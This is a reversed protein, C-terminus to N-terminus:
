KLYKGRLEVLKDKMLEDKCEPCHYTPLIIEEVEDLLPKIIESQIFSELDYFAERPFAKVKHKGMLRPFEKEFRVEWDKPLPATKNVAM